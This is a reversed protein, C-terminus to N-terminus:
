LHPEISPLAPRDPWKPEPQFIEVCQDIVMLSQVSICQGCLFVGISKPSGEVKRSPDDHPQCAIFGPVSMRTGKLIFRLM